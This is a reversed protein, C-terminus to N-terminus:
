IYPLIMAAYVGCPGPPTPDTPQFIFPDRLPTCPATEGTSCRSCAGCCPAAASHCQSRGCSSRRYKTHSTVGATTGQSFGAQREHLSHAHACTSSPICRMSNCQQTDCAIFVAGLLWTHTTSPYQAAGSFHRAPWSVIQHHECIAVM